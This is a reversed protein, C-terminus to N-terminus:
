GPLHDFRLDLQGITGPNIDQDHRRAGIREDAIFDESFPKALGPCLHGLTQPDLDPLSRKCPFFTSNQGRLRPEGPMPPVHWAVKLSPIGSRCGKPFLMPPAHQQNGRHYVGESGIFNTPTKSIIYM